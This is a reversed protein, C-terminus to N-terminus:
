QINLTELPYFGVLSQRLGTLRTKAVAEKEKVMPRPLWFGALPFRPGAALCRTCAGTEPKRSRNHVVLEHNRWVQGAM